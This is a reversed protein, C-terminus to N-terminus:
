QASEAACWLCCSVMSLRCTCLAILDELLDEAAKFPNTDDTPNTMGYKTMHKTM